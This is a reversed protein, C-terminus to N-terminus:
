GLRGAILFIFFIQGYVAITALTVATTRNLRSGLYAALACVIGVIAGFVGMLVSGALVIFLLDNASESFLLEHFGITLMFLLSVKGATNNWVPDFFSKTPRPSGNEYSRNIANANGIAVFSAALFVLFPVLFSEVVM